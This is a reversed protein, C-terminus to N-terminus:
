QPHTSAVWVIEGIKGLCNLCLRFKSANSVFAIEIQDKKVQAYELKAMDGNTEKRWRGESRKAGRGM